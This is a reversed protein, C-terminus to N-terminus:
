KINITPSMDNFALKAKTTWDHGPSILYIETIYEIRQIINTTISKLFKKLIHILSVFNYNIDFIYFGLLFVFLLIKEGSFYLFSSIGSNFISHCTIWYGISLQFYFILSSISCFRILSHLNLGLIIFKFLSFSLLFPWLFIFTMIIFYYKSINSTYYHYTFAFFTHSHFYLM